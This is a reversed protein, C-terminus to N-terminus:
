KKILSNAAQKLEKFVTKNNTSKGLAQDPVEDLSDQFLKFREYPKKKKTNAPKKL